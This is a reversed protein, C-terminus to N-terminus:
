HRAQEWYKSNRRVPVGDGNRRWWIPTSDLQMAVPEAGKPQSFRPSLFLASKLRGVCAARKEVPLLTVAISRTFSLLSSGKIHLLFIADPHQLEPQQPECVM